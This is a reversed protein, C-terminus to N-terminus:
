DTAPVGVTTGSCKDRIIQRRALLADIQQGSLYDGVAAEIDARTITSWYLEQDPAFPGCPPTLLEPNIETATSFAKTVDAIQFRREHPLYMLGISPHAEHVDMLAMVAEAGSLRDVLEDDLFIAQDYMEIFVEDVATDLWIQLSGPVGEVRREVTAPVLGIDLLRDILFSAVENRYTRPM